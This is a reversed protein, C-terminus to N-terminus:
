DNHRYLIDELVEYDHARPTNSQTLSTDNKLCTNPADHSLGIAHGIEHCIGVRLESSSHNNTCRANMFIKTNTNYHGANDPSEETLGVFEACTFATDGAELGVCHDHGGCEAAQRSVRLGQADDWTQVTAPVPWAPGLRDVINVFGQSQGGDSWHRLLPDYHSGLVSGTLSTLAVLAACIAVLASRKRTTLRERNM